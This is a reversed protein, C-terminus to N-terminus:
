LKIGIVSVTFPKKCLAGLQESSYPTQVIELKSISSYYTLREKVFDQCNKSVIVKALKGLKSLKLTQKTGFVLKEQAAQLQLERGLTSTNKKAM